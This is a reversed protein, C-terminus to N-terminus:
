PYSLIEKEWINAIEARLKLGTGVLVQWFYIVLMQKTAQLFLTVRKICMM